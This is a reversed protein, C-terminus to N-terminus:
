SKEKIHHEQLLDLTHSMGKIEGEVGSVLKVLGDLREHLREISKQNPLNGINISLGSYMDKLKDTEIKHQRCSEDRAVKAAKLDDKSLRENVANELTTFRDNTVKQKNSLYVYIGVVLNGGVSVWFQMANYDIAM